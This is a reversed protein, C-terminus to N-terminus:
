TGALREDDFPEDTYLHHAELYTTITEPVLYRVSRRDRRYQRILSASIGVIPMQLLQWQLILAENALQDAVQQCRSFTESRPQDALISLPNTSYRDCYDIVQPLRPAVLWECQTVWKHSQYWRPLSQFADLGIIWYWQQVSYLAKLETFTDIAYSIGSRKEEITSIEFKPHPAIARRVMEARHHFELLKTASRHPPNYTPVWLIRDLNFQDLATEAMLLHGWHIPNFTGGFIALKGM